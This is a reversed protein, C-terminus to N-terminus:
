KTEGVKEGFFDTLRSMCFEINQMSNAYCLRIFGEGYDGFISGPAVAINLDNLLVRSLEESSYGTESINPFIYFAGEPKISSFGKITNLQTYIFDRRARYESVMSDIEYQDDNLAAIGAKQTFVPVCSVLTELLLNMKKILLEPGTVVGLRWGTMAYSKSFGNILITNQLCHDIQSPSFFETKSDKYIMRSYIEDTILYINNKLCLDYIERIETQNMVSGTPNNPSNIILVKTKKTIKRKVDDPDIHFNNKELLPVKVPVGGIFNIVSDYTVFSPDPLIVEDGNNIICAIALYIQFNAGPTVLIQNINPKFGRSKFTVNSALERLEDIGYSGCYHTENNNISDIAAKKVNYPTKFDPDGIEFHLIDRGLNELEKAKALIQFMKQGILRDASTSFFQKM